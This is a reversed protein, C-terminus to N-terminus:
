KNAQFEFQKSKAEDYSRKLGDGPLGVESLRFKLDDCEEMMVKTHRGWIYTPHECGRKNRYYIKDLEILVRRMDPSDSQKVYVDNFNNEIFRPMFETINMEYLEIGGAKVEWNDWAEGAFLEINFSSKNRYFDQVNELDMTGSAIVVAKKSAVSLLFAKLRELDTPEEGKVEFFLQHEPLWFDPLYRSVDGLEYGEKEYEWSAGISDFFVAWRAELRSRFNYGKYKTQIPRLRM